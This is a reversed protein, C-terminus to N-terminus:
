WVQQVGTTNIMAQLDGSANAWTTGNTGTAAVHQITQGQTLLSAGLLLVLLSVARVLFRTFSPLSLTM